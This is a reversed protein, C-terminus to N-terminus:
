SVSFSRSKLDFSSNACLILIPNLLIPNESNSFFSWTLDGLYLYGLNGLGVVAKERM